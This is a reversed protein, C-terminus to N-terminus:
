MNSKKKKSSGCILIAIVVNLIYDKTPKMIFIDVAFHSILISTSHHSPHFSEFLDLLIRLDLLKKTGWCSNFWYLRTIDSAMGSDIFLEVPSCTEFSLMGFSPRSGSYSHPDKSDHRSERTTHPQYHEAVVHQIQTRDDRWAIGPANRYAVESAPPHSAGTVHSSPPM